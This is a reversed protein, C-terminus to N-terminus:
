AWGKATFIRKHSITEIAKGPFSSCIHLKFVQLRLKTEAATYLETTVM